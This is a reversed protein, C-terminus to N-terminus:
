LDIRNATDLYEQVTERRVTGEFVHQTTVFPRDSPTGVTSIFSYKLNIPREIFRAFPPQPGYTEPDEGVQEVHQKARGIEEAPLQEMIHAIVAEEGCMDGVVQTATFTNASWVVGRTESLVASIEEWRMNRRYLASPEFESDARFGEYVLVSDTKSVADFEEPEPALYAERISGELSFQDLNAQAVVMDGGPNLVRRISTEDFFLPVAGAYVVDVSNEQLPLRYADGIVPNYSCGYEQLVGTEDQDPLRGESVDLQLVTNSDDALYSPGTCRGNGLDLIVDHEYQGLVNELVEGYRGTM